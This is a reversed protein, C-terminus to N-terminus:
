QSPTTTSPMTTTTTHHHRRHHKTTTTTTTTGTELNKGSPTTNSTDPMTAPSPSAAPSNSTSPAQAPSAGANPNNVQALAPGACVALILGYRIIKMSMPRGEKNGQTLM